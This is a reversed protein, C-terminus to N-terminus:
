CTTFHSVAMPTGARSAAVEGYVNELFVAAPFIQAESPDTACLSAVLSPHDSPHLVQGWLSRYLLDLALQTVGRQTKSGLITHSQKGGFFTLM